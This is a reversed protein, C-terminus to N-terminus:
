SVRRTQEPTEGLVKKYARSFHAYDAYGLEAALASLEGVDGRLRAAAQQLRRCDILWKPSVGVQERVLRELTRTTVGVRAALEDVRTISADSEALQCVANVTMARQDLGRALPGLWRGLLEILRQRAADSAMAEGVAGLPAGPLAEGRGLLDRPPTQTLVSAAAPRFLVGVAWSAGRLEHVDLRPDPGFLRAHGPELVANFAPYSLVRQPRAEGPPINWRVVWVHRVLETLGAGLEFRDFVVEHQAEPAAPNLHGHSQPM